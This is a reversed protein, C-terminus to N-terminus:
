RARYKVGEACGATVAAWMAVGVWSVWQQMIALRDSTSFPM